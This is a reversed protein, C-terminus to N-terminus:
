LVNSQIFSYLQNALIIGDNDTDAQRDQLGDLLVSTFASHGWKENEVVEENKKGATIILRSRDKTLGKVIDLDKNSRHQGVAALGGYCADVLFLVSKAPIENSFTNITKMSLTTRTLNDNIGDIPILYGLDENSGSNKRTTGHGAFFVVVADDQQTKEVLNYFANQIKDKTADNDTLLEINDEPFGYQTMLTVKMSNADDVAYKLPTFNPYQNIGIILAWQNEYVDIPSINANKLLGRTISESFLM